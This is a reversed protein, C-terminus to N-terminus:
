NLTSVACKKSLISETADINLFSTMGQAELHQRLSRGLLQQAIVAHTTFSVRHEQSLHSVSLDM